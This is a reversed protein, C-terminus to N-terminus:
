PGIRTRLLGSSGALSLMQASSLAVDFMILDSATFSAQNGSFQYTADKTTVSNLNANTANTGVGLFATGTADGWKGRLASDLALDTNAPLGTTGTGAVGESWAVVSTGDFTGSIIKATSGALAKTATYATVFDSLEFSANGSSRQLSMGVAEGNFGGSTFFSADGSSSFAAVLTIQVQRRINNFRGNGYYAFSTASGNVWAPTTGNLGTASYTTSAAVSCPPNTCFTLDGGRPLITTGYDYVKTVLGGSIKVGFAPDTWLRLNNLCACTVTLWNDVLSLWSLDIKTIDGGDNLVRNIHTNVRANASTCYANVIRSGHEVGAALTVVKYFFQNVSGPTDSFTPATAAGLNTPQSGVSTGRYVRYTNNPLANYWALTAVGGSCTATVGIPAANAAAAADVVETYYDINNQWLGGGNAYTAGNVLGNNSSSPFFGHSAYYHAVGDEIYASVTQLFTPGPYVGTYASSVRSVAPSALVNFNADIPARSVYMGGGNNRADESVIAYAQASVMVSDPANGLGMTTSTGTCPISGTGSVPLCVNFFGNIDTFSTGNTSTWKQNVLLNPVYPTFGKLGTSYWTNVGTRVVRQFSSWQLNNSNLHTGGFVTWNLLDSSKALGNEHQRNSAIGEGYLYFPNTADDPNCVLWPLQYLQYNTQSGPASALLNNWRIIPFVAAPMVGPDNSFGAYFDNGDSWNYFETPHDVSGFWIYRGNAAAITAGSSGCDTATLDYPRWGYLGNSHYYDATSVAPSGTGPVYYSSPQVSAPSGFVNALRLNAGGGQASPTSFQFMSFNAASITLTVACLIATLLFKKM